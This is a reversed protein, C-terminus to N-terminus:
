YVVDREGGEACGGDTEEGVRLWVMEDDTWLWEAGPADVAVFRSEGRYVPSALTTPMRSEMVM